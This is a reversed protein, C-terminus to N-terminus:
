LLYIKDTAFTCLNECICLNKTIKKTYKGNKKYNQVAFVNYM